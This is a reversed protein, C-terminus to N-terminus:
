QYAYLCAALPYFGISAEAEPLLVIYMRISHIFSSFTMFSQWHVDNVVQFIFLNTKIINWMRQNLKQHDHWDNVQSRMEGNFSLYIGKWSIGQLDELSALNWARSICLYILFPDKRSPDWLRHFFVLIYVFALKYGSFNHISQHTLITHPFFSHTIRLALPSNPSLMLETILTFLYSNGSLSTSFIIWLLLIAWAFTHCQSLAHYIEPIAFTM